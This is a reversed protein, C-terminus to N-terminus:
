RGVPQALIRWLINKGYVDDEQFLLYSGDRRQHARIAYPIDVFVHNAVPGLGPGPVLQQLHAGSAADFVEVISTQREVTFLLDGAVDFSKVDHGADYRVVDVMWTPTRNGGKWFRDIRALVCGGTIFQKGEDFRRPRDPTSGCVFLTDSDPLYKARDIGTFGAIGGLDQTEPGYVPAGFRDLGGCVDVRIRNGWGAHWLNGASDPSGLIGDRKAGLLRWEGAGIGGDGDADLWMSRGKPSDKWTGTATFVGCPVAREGAFRYVGIKDGNMDLTYLIRQGAIRCVVATCGRPFDVPGRQKDHLYAAFRWDQGAPRDHDLVFREDKTFVQTDDAPDVSACDVFMLGQLCWRVAGRRDYSRLVTGEFGSSGSCAVYMNGAADFGLGRPGYLRDDVVQGPNSGAWVGGRGGFTRVRKPAAAVDYFVVQQDPGDETIALLGDLPDFALDRAQVVETIRQPLVQGDRTLHIVTSVADDAERQLIMWLTRDTPNVELRGARQCPFERVVTMDATRVVVVRSAAPDSVFLEGNWCTMGQTNGTTLPLRNGKAGPWPAMGGDWAMRAVGRQKFSWDVALGAYIYRDDGTVDFGGRGGGTERGYGIMMGDRYIGVEHHAEDWHTNMVVTGDAKVWMDEHRNQMHVSDGLDGKALGRNADSGGSLTNGLWSTTWTISQVVPPPAEGGTLGALCAFLLAASCAPPISKM